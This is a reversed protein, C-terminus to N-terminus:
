GKRLREALAQAPEKLNARDSRGPLLDEVAVLVHRV